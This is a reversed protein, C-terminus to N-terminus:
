WDDLLWPHRAVLEADTLQSDHRAHLPQLNEEDETAPAPQKDAYGAEGMLALLRDTEDDDDVDEGDSSSDAVEAAQEAAVIAAHRARWDGIGAGPNWDDTYEPRGPLLLLLWSWVRSTLSPRRVDLEDDAVM